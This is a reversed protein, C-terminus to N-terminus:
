DTVLPRTPVRLSVRAGRGPADEIRLQGGHLAATREAIALGLGAGGAARTPSGDAQYFPEVVRERLGAPIGPGDDIVALELFRRDGEGDVLVTAEVDVRGGTPSFKLANDILHALADALKPADALVPETPLSTAVVLTSERERAFAASRAVADDIVRACSVATRELTVSGTAFRTVALLNQIITNLRVLSGRMRELTRAQADSIPGLEARELMKAYGILPTMPTALEHSVNRLVEMKLKDVERLRENAVTLARVKEELRDVTRRNQDVLHQARDSEAIRERRGTLFARLESEFTGVQIPKAIFGDFGLALARDRDGEATVAVIPVHELAAMGRLKTVVEYGDLGPLNIDVLVLEPQATAALQVGSLGDTTDVVEHGAIELLKRVLLRNERRDEIHLLKM